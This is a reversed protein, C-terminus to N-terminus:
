ILTRKWYLEILTSTSVCLANPVDHFIISNFDAVGIEEIWSYDYASRAVNSGIAAMSSQQLPNFVEKVRDSDVIASPGSSDIVSNRLSWSTLEFGANADVAFWVVVLWAIIFQFRM